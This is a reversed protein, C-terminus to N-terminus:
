PTCGFQWHAFLDPYMKSCKRLWKAAANISRKFRKRNKMLWKLLRYNFWSWLGRILHSNFRAYYSTWGRLRANLCDAIEALEMQPGMLSMLKKIRKRIRMQAKQGIGLDFSTFQRNRQKNWQKRPRFDYGLYTFKRAKDTSVKKRSSQQCYVIRTKKPHLELGCSQLRQRIEELLSEAEGESRCHVIIDDAYREFKVGVHNLEMWKDFVYHLFLNSLLPSIVGGQPTGKELKEHFGSGYLVGAELWRVIYMRVWKEPFHRGVAKLLLDHRINDFYGKIDMDIVWAYRWCNKRCAELAQHANRGPRYGYSSESFIKELRPECYGKLVTQAVRDLVTPIGLPRFSNEGKQILVRKVPPPFYSGSSLRNWLKYLQNQYDSKLNEITMGDVGSSGANRLVRKYGDYVEHKTIPVSKGKNKNLGEM